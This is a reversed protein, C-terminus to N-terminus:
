VSIVIMLASCPPRPPCQGIWFKPQHAVTCKSLLLQGANEGRDEGGAWPGAESSTVPGGPQDPGRSGPGPGSTGCNDPRWGQSSEVWHGVTGTGGLISTLHDLKTASKWRSDVETKVPRYQRVSTIETQWSDMDEFQILPKQDAM